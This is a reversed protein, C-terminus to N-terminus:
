AVRESNTSAASQYFDALFAIQGSISRHEKSAFALIKKYSEADVKVSKSKPAQKKAM